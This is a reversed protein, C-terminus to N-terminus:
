ARDSVRLGDSAEDLNPLELLPPLLVPLEARALISGVFERWYPWVTVVAHWYVFQELEHKTFEAGRSVRYVLRFRAYLEYDDPPALAAFTIIAGFADADESVEYDVEIGTEPETRGIPLGSPLPEDDGTTEFYASVLAIADLTLHKAVRAVAAPDLPPPPEVDRTSATEYESSNM